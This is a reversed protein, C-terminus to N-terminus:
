IVKQPPRNEFSELKRNQKHANPVHDERVVDLVLNVFNVQSSQNDISHVTGKCDTMQINVPIYRVIPRRQLLLRVRLTLPTKFKM